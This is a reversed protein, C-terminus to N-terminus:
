LTFSIMRIDQSFVYLSNARTSTNAGEMPIKLRRASSLLCRSSSSTASEAKGSWLRPIGFRSPSRSSWNERLSLTRMLVQSFLVCPLWDYWMCSWLHIHMHMCAQAFTLVKWCALTCPMMPERRYASCSRWAMKSKEKARRVVHWCSRCVRCLSANSFACTGMLRETLSLLIEHVVTFTLATVSTRVKLLLQYKTIRQVPKILYSSISNALRHRQQIEQSTM